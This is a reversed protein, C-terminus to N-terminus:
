IAEGIDKVDVIIDRFELRFHKRMEESKSAGESDNL